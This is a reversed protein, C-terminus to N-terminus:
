VYEYIFHYEIINTENDYTIISDLMEYDYMYRPVITFQGKNGNSKHLFRTESKLYALAEEFRSDSLRVSYELTFAENEYWPHFEYKYETFEAMKYFFLLEDQDIVDFELEREVFPDLTKRMDSSSYWIDNSYFTYLLDHIVLWPPTALIALIIAIVKFRVGKKAFIWISLLVIFEIIFLPIALLILYFGFDLHPYLVPSKFQPLIILIGYICLTIATAIVSIVVFTKRKM